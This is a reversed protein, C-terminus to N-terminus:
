NLTENAITFSKPTDHGKWIKWGSFDYKKYYWQYTLGEGQASAEFAVNEGAQTQIDSPQATIVPAAYYKEDTGFFCGCLILALATAAAAAKM